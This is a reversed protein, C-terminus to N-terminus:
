KLYLSLSLDFLIRKKFFHFHTVCFSWRHGVFALEFTLRISNTILSSIMLSIVYDIVCEIFQPMVCFDGVLLDSVSTKM